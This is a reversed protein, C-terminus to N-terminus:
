TDGQISNFTFSGEAPSQMKIFHLIENQSMEDIANNEIMLDDLKDHFDAFAKKIAEKKQTELQKIKEQEALIKQKRKEIQEEYKKFDFNAM